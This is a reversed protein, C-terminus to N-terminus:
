HFIQQEGKYAVITLCLKKILINWRGHMLWIWFIHSVFASWYKHHIKSVINGGVHTPRYEPWRWPSTIRAVFGGQLHSSYRGFCTPSFMTLLICWLHRLANTQQKCTKRWACLQRKIFTHLFDQFQVYITVNIVKINMGNMNILLNENYALM